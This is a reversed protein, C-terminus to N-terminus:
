SMPCRPRRELSFSRRSKRIRRGSRQAGRAKPTEVGVGLAKRVTEFIYHEPVIGVIFEIPVGNEFILLTPVVRIKYRAALEPHAAINVRVVRLRGASAKALKRLAADMVPSRPALFNVLVPISSEALLRDLTAETRSPFSERPQIVLSM